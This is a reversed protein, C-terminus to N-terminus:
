TWVPLLEDAPVGLLTLYTNHYHQHSVEAFWDDGAQVSGALPAGAGPQAYSVGLLALVDLWGKVVDITGQMALPCSPGDGPFLAKMGDLDQWAMPVLDITNFYRNAGGFLGDYFDAFVQNGATPGAFTFPTVTAGTTGQGLWYQLYPALVTALCGGLSHGTVWLPTGASLVGGLYTELSEGGSTISLLDNLGTSTGEAIVAAVSDVTTPPYAWPVTSGVRLDEYLDILESVSFSQEINTGRIAVAYTSLTANCAVFMMNASFDSTAPGWVVTWDTGTCLTGGALLPEIQDMSPAYTLGALTMAVQPPTGVATTTCDEALLTQSM